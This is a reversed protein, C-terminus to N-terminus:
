KERECEAVPEGCADLHGHAIGNRDVKADSGNPTEVVLHFHNGM